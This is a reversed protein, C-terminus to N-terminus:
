AAKLDDWEGCQKQWSDYLTEGSVGKFWKSAHDPPDMGLLKQALHHLTLIEAKFKLKYEGNPQKVLQAQIKPDSVFCISEGDKLFGDRVLATLDFKGKKKAM